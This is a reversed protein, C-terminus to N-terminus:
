LPTTDLSAILFARCCCPASYNFVHTFKKFRFDWCAWVYRSPFYVCVCVCVCVCVMKFIVFRLVRM